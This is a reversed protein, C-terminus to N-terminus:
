ESKVGGAKEKQVDVKVVPAKMDDGSGELYVASGNWLSSSITALLLVEHATKGGLAVLGAIAITVVTYILQILMFMLEGRVDDFGIKEGNKFLGFGRGMQLILGHIANSPDSAIWRYSTLLQPNRKMYSRLVTHMLAFYGLQWVGYTVFCWYLDSIKLYNKAFHETSADFPYWTVCYSFLMPWVHLGVSMIREFDHFVLSQNWIPVAICVPGNGYLFILSYAVRSVEGLPLIAPVMICALNVWYCFDLCFLHWGKFYYSVAKEVVTLGGAVSFVKGAVVPHHTLLQALCSLALVGLVFALRSHTSAM